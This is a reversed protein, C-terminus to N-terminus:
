RLVAVDNKFVISHADVITSDGITYIGDPTDQIAGGALSVLNPNIYYSFGQLITDPCIYQVDLQTEDVIVNVEPDDLFEEVKERDFIQCIKKGSKDRISINENALTINVPESFDFELFLKGLVGKRKLLIKKLVPGSGIYFWSSYISNSKPIKIDWDSIDFSGGTNPFFSLKYWGHQLSSGPRLVLCSESMTDNIIDVVVEKDVPVISGRENELRCYSAMTSIISETELGKEDILCLMIPTDEVNTSLHLPQVWLRKTIQEQSCNSEFQENYSQNEGKTKRDNKIDM